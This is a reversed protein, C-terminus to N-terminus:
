FRGHSRNSEWSPIIRGLQKAITRYRARDVIEIQYEPYRKKFRKLKTASETNMWGKVEQYIFQDNTKFVKFDPTYFRTGRKIDKFEFTDPEFEWKVIQRQEILWNLYRAWNAEWRSRFYVNGLDSRKGGLGTPHEKGKVRQTQISAWCKMSCVVGRSGAGMRYSKGCADCTHIPRKDVHKSARNKGYCKCSCFTRYSPKGSQVCKKLQHKLSKELEIFKSYCKISCFKTRSAHCRPVHKSKGCQQCAVAVREAKCRNGRMTAACKCSCCIANAARQIQKPPAYFEKRCNACIQRPVFQKGSSWNKPM